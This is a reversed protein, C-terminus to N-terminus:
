DLLHFPLSALRRQTLLSPFGLTLKNENAEGPLFGGSVRSVGFLLAFLGFTFVLTPVIPKSHVPSPGRTNWLTVQLGQLAVPPLKGDTGGGAGHCVIIHRTVNQVIFKRMRTLGVNPHPLTCDFQSRVM